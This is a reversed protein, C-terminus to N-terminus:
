ASRDRTDQVGPCQKSALARPAKIWVAEGRGILSKAQDITVTGPIDRAVAESDAIVTLAQNEHYVNPGFLRITGVPSTMM